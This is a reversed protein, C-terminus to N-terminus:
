RAAVAPVAERRWAWAALTAWLALTILLFRAHFLDPLPRPWALTLPLVSEPLKPLFLPLVAAAVLARTWAPRRQAEWLVLLVLPLALAYTYEWGLMTVMPLVALVLAGAAARDLRGLAYGGFAVGFLAVALGRQVAVLWGPPGVSGGVQVFAELDSVARLGVGVISENLVNPVALQSVVPLIDLFYQSYLALDVVPLLVLPLGVGVALLGAAIGVAARRAEGGAWRRLAPAGLPLLIIPYLKLWFGLALAAGAARWHRREALWLFGIGALLVFTNVQGFKLNQFTAGSALAVLLLSAKWAPPIEEGRVAEVLRLFLLVAAVAAVYALVALVVSAVPLPFALLPLFFGVSAPPYMFHFPDPYLNLPEALVRETATYYYWFDVPAYLDGRLVPFYVALANYALGAPVLVAALAAPVGLAPRERWLQLVSRFLALM